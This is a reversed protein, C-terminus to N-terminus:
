VVRLEIHVVFPKTPFCHVNSDSVVLQCHLLIGTGTPTSDVMYDVVLKGEILEDVLTLWKSYTRTVKGTTIISDDM